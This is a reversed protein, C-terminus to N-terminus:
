PMVTRTWPCGNADAALSEHLRFADLERGLDACARSSACRSPCVITRTATSPRSAPAISSRAATTGLDARIMRSRRRAPDPVDRDDRAVVLGRRALEGLRQPHVAVEGLDEGGVLGIVHRLELRFPALDAEDAVPDVVRDRELLGVDRDREAASRRDGGVGGLDDEELASRDRSQSSRSIARSRSRFTFRLQDIITAGFTVFMIPTNVIPKPIMVETTVLLTEASAAPWHGAAAGCIRLSKSPGAGSGRGQANGGALDGLSVAKREM